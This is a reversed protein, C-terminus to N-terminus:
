RSGAANDLMDRAATSAPSNWIAAASRTSCPERTVVMKCGAERPTSGRATLVTVLVAAEGARDLDELARLWPGM